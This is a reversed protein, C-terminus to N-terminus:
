EPFTFRYMRIIFFLAVSVQSARSFNARLVNRDVKKSVLNLLYAAAALQKDNETPTAEVTSLLTVFYETDSEKGNNTKILETAAALVALVDKQM